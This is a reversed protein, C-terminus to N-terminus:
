LLGHLGLPDQWACGGHGPPHAASWSVLGRGSWCFAQAAAKGPSGPGGVSRLLVFQLESGALVGLIRSAM